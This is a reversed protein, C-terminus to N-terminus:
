KELNDATTLDPASDANNLDLSEILSDYFTARREVEAKNYEVLRSIVNEVESKSKIFNTKTVTLENRIEELNTKLLQVVSENINNNVRTESNLDGVQKEEVKAQVPQKDLYQKNGLVEVLRNLISIDSDELSFKNRMLDNYEYKESTEETSSADSKLPSNNHIEVTKLHRELEDEISRLEDEDIQPLHDDFKLNATDTKLIKVNM